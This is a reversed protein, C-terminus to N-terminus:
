GTAMTRESPPGAPLLSGFPRGHTKGPLTEAGMMRSPTGTRPPRSPRHRKWTRRVAIQKPRVLALLVAEHAPAAQSELSGRLLCPPPERGYLDPSGLPESRRDVDVAEVVLEENDEVTLD